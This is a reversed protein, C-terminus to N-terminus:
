WRQPLSPPLPSRVSTEGLLHRRKLRVLSIKNSGTAEHEVGHNPQPWWCWPPRSDQLTKAMTQLHLIHRAEYNSSIINTPLSPSKGTQSSRWNENLVSRLMGEPKKGASGDAYQVVLQSPALHTQPLVSHSPPASPITPSSLSAQRVALPTRSDLHIYQSTVQSNQYRCTGNALGVVSALLCLALMQRSSTLLSTACLGSRHVSRQTGARLQYDRRSPCRHPLSYASLSPASCIFTHGLFPCFHLLSSSHLLVHPM